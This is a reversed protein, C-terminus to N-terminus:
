EGNKEPHKSVLKGSPDVSIAIIENERKVHAEYVTQGKETEQEVKLIPLGGAERLLGDRAPAPIDELKVVKEHEESRESKGHEHASASSLPVTVGLLAIAFLWKYREM